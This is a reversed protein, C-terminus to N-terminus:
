QDPDSATFARLARVADRLPVLEENIIRQVNAFDTDFYRHALQDRLRAIERWPITPFNALLEPSLHKVAEGIEILRVRCVDYAMAKDASKSETYKHITDLCDHIDNLRQLERRTM